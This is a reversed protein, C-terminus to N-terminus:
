ISVGDMGNVLETGIETDVLGKGGGNKALIDKLCGASVAVFGLYPKSPRLVRSLYEPHYQTGVYWPHDKLELIEMREGSDDKGIFCLGHSSLKDVYAPNVEYRHRHRESISPPTTPDSKTTVAGNATTGNITIGSGHISEGKQPTASSEGYLARLKSWESNSQFWTQRLGLRMTAGMTARDIEPMFIIVPDPTREDLEISAAKPVNCVNRAYEIVAIQMGSNYGNAM